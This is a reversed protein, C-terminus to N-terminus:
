SHAICKGRAILELGTKILKARENEDVDSIKLVNSIPELKDQEFEKKPPNLILHNYM